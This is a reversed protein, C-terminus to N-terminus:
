RRRPSGRRGDRARWAPTGIPELLINAPKLDRHLIGQQHACAIARALTQVLTAAARAPQPRGQCARALTPGGVLEMTFYPCGDCQGIDYIQIINPHHLRAVAEAETQFRARDVAGARAGAHIMKLAVLRNLGVQRARYVVGM